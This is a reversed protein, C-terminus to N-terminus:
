YDHHGGGDVVGLPEELCRDAVVIGHDEDPVLQEVVQLLLDGFTIPQNRKAPGRDTASPRVQRHHGSRQHHVARHSRGLLEGALDTDLQNVGACEHRQVDIRDQGRNFLGPPQQHNV